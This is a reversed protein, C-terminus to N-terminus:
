NDHGGLRYRTSNYMFLIQRRENDLLICGSIISRPDYQICTTENVTMSKYMTKKITRIFADRQKSTVNVM